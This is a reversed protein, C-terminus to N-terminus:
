FVQEANIAIVFARLCQQIQAISIARSAAKIQRTLQVGATPAVPSPALTKTHLSLDRFPSQGLVGFGSMLVVRRQLWV